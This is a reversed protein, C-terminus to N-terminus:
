AKTEAENVGCGDKADRSEPAQEIVTGYRSRKGVIARAQAHTFRFAGEISNTADRIPTAWWVKIVPEYILYKNDIM